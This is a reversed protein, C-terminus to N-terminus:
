NPGEFGCKACKYKTALKRCSGCRTVEMDGCSPCKFTVASTDNTINKGCSMCKNTKM